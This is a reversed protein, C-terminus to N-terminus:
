IINIPFFHYLGLTNQVEVFYAFSEIAKKGFEGTWDTDQVVERVISEFKKYTLFKEVSLRAIFFSNSDVILNQHYEDIKKMM